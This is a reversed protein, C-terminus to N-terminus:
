MSSSCINVTELYSSATAFILNLPAKSSLPQKQEFISRATRQDFTFVYRLFRDFAGLALINKNMCLLQPIQRQRRVGSQPSPNTQLLRYSYLTTARRTQHYPPFPTPLCACSQINSSDSRFFTFEQECDLRAKSRVATRFKVLKLAPPRENIRRGDVCCHLNNSCTWATNYLTCLAWVLSLYSAWTGLAVSCKVGSLSGDTRGDTTLRGAGRTSSPDPWHSPEVSSTAPFNFCNNSSFIDQPM